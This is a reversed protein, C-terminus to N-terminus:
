LVEERVPRAAVPLVARVLWGRDGDPGAELTGGLSAAREAMGTLGYGATAEREPARSPRTPSGDDRVQLALTATGREVTVTIGTASRAHRRANTVAEQAIRFLATATAGPLPGVDAPVHVRVEPPGPDSLARLETLGPAPHRSTEDRLVGVLARMEALARRAEAEVVRLADDAAAPNSEASILGAQARVAVASLHHAVTDHLDRAIAARERLRAQDLERTRAASRQRVLEGLMATLVLVVAGGVADSTGGRHVVVSVTIGAVLLPAGALTARGSGWRFLAYPVLVGIGATYLGAPVIGAAAQALEVASGTGVVWAVVPVPHTRRWPLAALGALTVLATVLPWTLDPRAATEVVTAGVAAAVLLGDRRGPPPAGPAPPRTLASALTRMGTM